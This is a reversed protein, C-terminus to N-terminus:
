NDYDEDIYLNDGSNQAYFNHSIPLLHPLNDDNPPLRSPSPSTVTVSSNSLSPVLPPINTVDVQLKNEQRVLSEVSFNLRPPEINTLKPVYHIVPTRGSSTSQEVYFNATIETDTKSESTVIPAEGEPPTKNNPDEQIEVAANNENDEQLSADPINKVLDKLFDFRSESLICQKMHSPTLTKANRSQTIEMSKKLLSEM